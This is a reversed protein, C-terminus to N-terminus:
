EVVEDIYIEQDAFRILTMSVDDNLIQDRRFTNFDRLILDHLQEVPMKPHDVLIKEVRDISYIRGHKDEQEILGDSLIFILDGSKYHLRHIRPELEPMIGIPLNGEAIDISHFNRGRLLYLHSHGMDCLKIVHKKEHIELFLGTIYKEAEFTRVLYNNLNRIFEKLGRKFDYISMMGWLVSTIVSAAIGKGSVDCLSVLWKNQAIKRISTFDGGVGKATHNSSIYEFNSGVKLERERVIRKQLRGALAVDQQMLHSMYNLIDLTSFIGGFSGDGAAVLFYQVEDMLMEERIEEAVVFISDTIPFSRTQTMIQRVKRQKLIDRAYPKLMLTSLQRRIVVGTTQNSSDVVGIAKVEDHHSLDEILDHVAADENIYLLESVILALTQSSTKPLGVVKLHRVDHSIM